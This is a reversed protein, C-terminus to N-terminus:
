TNMLTNLKRKNKSTQRNADIIAGKSDMVWKNEISMIYLM